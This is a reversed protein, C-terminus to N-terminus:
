RCTEQLGIWGNPIRGSEKWEDLGATDKNEKYALILYCDAVTNVVVLATRSAIYNLKSMYREFDNIHKRNLLGVGSQSDQYSQWIFAAITEISENRIIRNAEESKLIPLIGLSRNEDWLEVLIYRETEELFYIFLYSDTFTNRVLLTTIIEGCDIDIFQFRKGDIEQLPKIPDNTRANM